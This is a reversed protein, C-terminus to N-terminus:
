GFIFNICYWGNKHKLGMLKQREPKVNTEQYIYQKLKLVTETDLVEVTLEKSSWKIIIKIKSKEEESM